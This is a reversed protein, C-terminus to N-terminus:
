IKDTHLLKNYEQLLKKVSELLDESGTPKSKLVMHPKVGASVFFREKFFGVLGSVARIDMEGRFYCIVSGDKLTVESINADKALYKIEAIKILSEVAKPMDGFRDCIEGEVELKDEDNEISAIKKYIDLRTSHNKIYSPPIYAEINIDINPQWSEAPVVGTLESVSQALLECYMDYGVTDIHGHQEAGLINGAGRIELDRMAIKFGSGFETFEKIARLRKAAVENLMKDPRYTFYAFARRNSRGVRGKLQYLQSLGMRNADEIIITNVNPIDLGTEIITTCVLVDIVGESMDMMIRELTDEDMAGHAFAINAEPFVNKLKRATSEISAIRNHIYYVQGGRSLERRIADHLVADNKEMVITRVPFRNEPPETLVSMDRINIMSMHLTRPIPTASLTLVDVNNKLEKIREKHKVGFRQEEDVVLLGLDKFEIDQGLLRHTGIIVDIEGSKLQKIIQTQEKKTKFRSIEAIRIPYKKMRECFTNFHQMVLVTTPALVAVQKSDMVAKFAARLAVETKGYGVDGCLLRDMPRSSEMDKKIEAISILQDDTEVYPFAEEFSKQWETDPSYAFGQAQQRAAYLAVLERALEETSAKVKKKQRAFDAGGMRNLRITGEKGVYKQLIDLQSTPVYLFDDGNYKIKLYDHRQGEVELTDLGLYQGIGHTHHVVYDGIDLDNFDRIKSASDLKKRKGKKKPAKGFIEESGFIAIKEEEYYFGRSLGGDAFNIKTKLLKETENIKFGRTALDECLKERADTNVSFIVTYGNKQFDKLEDYFREREGFTKGLDGVTTSIEAMPKYDRCPFPLEQFGIFEYKLLERLVDYYDHIYKDKFIFNENDEALAKVTEEIDWKLGEYRESIKQPEDFFIIANDNFYELISTERNKAMFGDNAPGISVSMINEVSVQTFVDFQRISDVGDGFFEIRVPNEQAPAFIDAIGGRIAFQGKGEVTDERTYGLDVLKKALKELPIEDGVAINLVSEKYSNLDVTFQLLADLSMVTITSNRAGFALKEIVELRQNLLENSKADAKYFELEKSPYYYVSEGLYYMLEDAVRKAEYDSDAVYVGQVSLDKCLSAAFHAKAPRTLGVVNKAGKGHLKKIQNYSSLEKATNLLLM